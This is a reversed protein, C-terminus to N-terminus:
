SLERGHFAIMKEAIYAARDETAFHGSDLRHLEAHPLHQLYAEGGERTFFLDDQGWFILTKPQRKELFDQWEGSRAVNTRYDYFLDLQIRRQNAARPARRGHACRAGGRNTAARGGPRHPASPRRRWDPSSDRAPIGRVGSASARCAQILKSAPVGNASRPLKGRAPLRSRLMATRDRRTPLVAWAPM